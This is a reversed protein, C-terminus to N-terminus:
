AALQSEKPIRDPGCVQNRGNHKAAYLALDAVKLIKQPHIGNNPATAYGLSATIPKQEGDSAVFVIKRISDLASLGIIETTQEDAGPLILTFEEGGYRAALGKEGVARQLAKGVRRLVDDGADHGYTENFLRFHDVDVMVVGVKHRHRRVDECQEALFDQLTRHNSLGTLPDTTAM